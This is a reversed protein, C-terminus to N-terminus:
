LSWVSVVCVCRSLPVCTMHVCQWMQVREHQGLVGAQVSEVSPCVHATMQLM